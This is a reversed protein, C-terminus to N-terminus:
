KFQAQCQNPTGKPTPCFHGQWARGNKEGAKQSMAGHACYRLPLGLEGLGAQQPQAPPPGAPMRPQSGEPWGDYNQNPAVQAAQPFANQLTAVAQQHTVAAPVVQTVRAPNLAVAMEQILSMAADGGMIETLTVGFDTTTDGGVVFIRGDALKASVQIAATM